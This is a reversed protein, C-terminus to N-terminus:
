CKRFTLNYGNLSMFLRMRNSVEESIIKKETMTDKATKNIATQHSFVFHVCVAFIM